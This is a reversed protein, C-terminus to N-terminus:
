GVQVVVVELRAGWISGNKKDSSMPGILVWRWQFRATSVTKPLSFWKWDRVAM